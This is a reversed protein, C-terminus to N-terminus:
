FLLKCLQGCNFDDLKGGYQDGCRYQAVPKQGFIAFDPTGSTRNVPGVQGKRTGEDDEQDQDQGYDDSVDSGCRSAMMGIFSSYMSAADISSAATSPNVRFRPSEGVM